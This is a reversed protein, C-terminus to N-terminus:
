LTAARLASGPKIMDLIATCDTQGDFASFLATLESRMKSNAALLRTVEKQAADLDRARQAQILTTLNETKM